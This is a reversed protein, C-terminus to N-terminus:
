GKLRKITEPSLFYRKYNKSPVRERDVIIGYDRQVSCVRSRLNPFGLKSWSEHDAIKRGKMLYNLLKQTHTLKM